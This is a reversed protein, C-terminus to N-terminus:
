RLFLLHSDLVLQSFISFRPLPDGHTEPLTKKLPKTEPTIGFFTHPVADGPDMETAIDSPTDSHNFTHNAHFRLGSCRVRWSGSGHLRLFRRLCSRPLVCSYKHWSRWCAASTTLVEVESRSFTCKSNFVIGTKCGYRAVTGVAKPDTGKELSILAASRRLLLFRHRRLTRRSVRFRNSRALQQLYQNVISSAPHKHTRKNDM